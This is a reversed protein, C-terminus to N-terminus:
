WPSSRNWPSWSLTTIVSSWSSTSSEVIALYVVALGFPIFRVSRGGSVFLFVVPNEAPVENVPFVLTSPGRQEAYQIYLRGSSVVAESDGRGWRGHQRM